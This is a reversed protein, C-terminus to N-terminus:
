SGGSSTNSQPPAYQYGPDYQPPPNYSGAYPDTPATDPPLQRWTDSGDSEPAQPVQPARPAQPATTQGINSSTAVNRHQTGDPAPNAAAVGATLAVLASVSTGAAIWRSRNMRSKRNPMPSTM